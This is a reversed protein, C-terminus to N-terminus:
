KGTGPCLTMRLTIWEATDLAGHLERDSEYRDALQRGDCTIEVKSTAFPWPHILIDDASVNSTTMTLTTTLDDRYPVDECTASGKFGQLLRLSMLDWTAILWMNRQVVEDAVYPEFRAETRLDDIIRQELRYGGEVFLRVQDYDDDDTSMTNLRNGYLRTGHKSVLLSVYRSYMLAARAAGDWLDIADALNGTIFTHPLGTEPNFKPQADVPLWGIDHQEAAMCVEEYPEFSGFKENGWNRALQGSVWAHAPQTVIIAGDDVQRILM